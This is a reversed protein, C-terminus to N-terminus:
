LWDSTDGGNDYGADYDDEASDSEDYNAEQVQPSDDRTDAGSAPDAQPTSAASATDASTSAQGHSGLGFADALLNGAVLGGAVGAATTLASSLFGGGGMRQGWPGNAGAGFGPANAGGWPGAPPQAGQFDTETQRAGPRPFTEPAAPAASARAPAGPAGGGFLGSLFGGAQQAQPANRAEALEAELTAVRESLNALAQEQVHVVQAMIYPASPQAAIRERIFAEAEPDRPQNEAQRLRDFIGGIVDKEQENM